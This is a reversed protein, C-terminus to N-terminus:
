TVMDTVWLKWTGNPNQGNNFAGLMEFPRFTGTFPAIATRISNPSSGRFCTSSFNQSTPNGLRSALTIISGDPAELKIELDNARAHTINFCLQLIGFSSDIRNAIGQITLPFFSPQQNDTIAGGSGSFNQAGLHIFLLGFLFTLIKKM